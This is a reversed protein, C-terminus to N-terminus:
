SKLWEYAWTPLYFSGIMIFEEEDSKDKWFNKDKIAGIAMSIFGRFTRIIIYDHDGEEWPITQNKDYELSVWACAALTELLEVPIKFERGSISAAQISRFLSVADRNPGNSPYQYMLYKFFDKEKGNLKQLISM